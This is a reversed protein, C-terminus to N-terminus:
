KDSHFKWFKFIIRYLGPSGANRHVITYVLTTNIRGRECRDIFHLLKNQKTQWASIEWVVMSWATNNTDQSLEWHTPTCRSPKLINPTVTHLSNIISGNKWHFSFLISVAFQISVQYCETRPTTPTGEALWM